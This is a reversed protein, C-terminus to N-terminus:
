IMSAVRLEKYADPDILDQGAIEALASYDRGSAPQPALSSPEEMVLIEVEKGMFERLEPLQLTESDVCRHVRIVRM